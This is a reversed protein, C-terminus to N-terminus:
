LSAEQTASLLQQALMGELMAEMDSLGVVGAKWSADAKELADYYPGKDSAIQDPITPTGPLVADLKISLVMYSVMRSTRGNGDAFPHIWNMRWLLYAALQLANQEEWNNDVYDCMESVLEPVETHRPPMHKSQGISVPTNRYTGALPHIGNLAVQHLDLIMSQRLRFKSGSAPINSRVIEIAARYQRVGNEAERKAKEVPDSILEVPDAQSHRDESM